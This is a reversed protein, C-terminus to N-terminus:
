APANSPPVRRMIPPSALDALRMAITNRLGHDEPWGVIDAHRSTEDEDPALNLKNQLVQSVILDGRGDIQGRHPEVKQVALDWVEADSFGEIRFVSLKLTSPPSFASYKISQGDPRIDKKKRLFRAITESPRVSPGPM